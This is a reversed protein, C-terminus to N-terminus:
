DEKPKPLLEFPIQNTNVEIAKGDKGTIEKKEAAYGGIIKILMDDAKLAAQLDEAAKALCKTEIISKVITQMDIGYNEAADGQLEKIRRAVEANSLLREGNSEATRQNKTKYVARYAATANFGNKHYEQCFAEHRPNALAPM